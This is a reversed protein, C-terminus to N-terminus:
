DVSVVATMNWLLRPDSQNPRIVATYVIDGRNDTGRLRVYDVTGELTLDPLADFEILVRTGPSIAVVDLETLDETEIQWETLDALSMIPAGAGVQEGVSVGVTAITGDFPARLETDALVVLAKQMAATAAALDAEAIAIQEPRAGALLLDLQAQNFDVDAQAARMDAPLTNKLTELQAQQRQVEASAGSVTASTPGKELLELRAQAAEYLNTAQQLQASQPLAGIDTRWGVLDYARQAQSLAAEANALDARAAVISSEDAGELVKALGASSVALGAEAQAIQGPLAGNVLRDLRAQAASLGAEAALIEQQRAGSQLQDLNAQARVVQAEAQAVAVQQQAADLRLLPQGAKVMDGERVLVQEVRGSASMSLEASQLPVVRADAVIVGRSDATASDAAEPQSDDASDDSADGTEATATAREPQAATRESCGSAAIIVIFAAFIALSGRRRM